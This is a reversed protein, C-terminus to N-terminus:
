VWLLSSVLVTDASEIEFTLVDQWSGLPGGASKFDSQSFTLKTWADIPALEKKCLYRALKDSTVYFFVEQASPSYVTLQLVSDAKGKYQPDALRFTTLVNSPSTVGELGFPGKEMSLKMSKGGPNNLILWDSFGMSSDYLLRKFTLAEGQINLTQPIVREVASSLCFGSKYRVNVFAYVPEGPLLVPSKALFEDESIRQLEQRRWNRFASNKQAHAVFLTTEAVESADSVRIEYYLQNQSGKASLVPPAPLPEKTLKAYFWKAANDARDPDIVRNARESVSLLSGREASKEYLENMMDMSNNQENSTIQIFVPAKLFNAYASAGLAAKYSLNQEAANAGSFVVAGARVTNELYCVKWVQDGGCGIGLMFLDTYGLSELFTISRLAGAAYVYWCSETAPADQPAPASLTKFFNAYSLSKPYLTYRPKYDTEGTYDVVLVSFGRLLYEAPDFADVTKEPDDFVIVAAKTAAPTKPEYLKYFIRAVGDPTKEGNFYGYRFRGAESGGEIAVSPNLPVSKRDYDKWLQQPTLIM